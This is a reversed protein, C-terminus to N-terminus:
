KQRLLQKGRKWVLMNLGPTTRAKTFGIAKAIVRCDMRRCILPTEGHITCGSEGLYWCDKNAKHALM